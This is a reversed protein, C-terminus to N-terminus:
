STQLAPLLHATCFRAADRAHHPWHEQLLRVMCMLFNCNVCLCLREARALLVIRKPFLERVNVFKTIINM